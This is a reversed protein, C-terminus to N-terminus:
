HKMIWHINFGKPIYLEVIADAVVVTHYNHHNGQGLHDVSLILHYEPDKNEKLVLFAFSALVHQYVLLTHTSVVSNGGRGCELKM